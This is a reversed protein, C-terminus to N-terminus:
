KLFNNHKLLPINALILLGLFNYLPLSGEINLALYNYVGHILVPILVAMVHYYVRRSGKIVSDGGSLFFLGMFSGCILHMMTPLTARTFVATFTDIGGSFVYSINEATAFGLAAGVACFYKFHHDSGQHSPPTSFVWDRNRVFLFFTLVFVIYKVLEEFLAIEIFFRYLLFGLKNPIEQSVQLLEPFGYIVTMVLGTCALGSFLFIHRGREFKGRVFDRVIRETPMGRDWVSNYKVGSILLNVYVFYFLMFILAGVLPDLAM